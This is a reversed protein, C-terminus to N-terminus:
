LGYGQSRRQYRPSGQGQGQGQPQQGFPNNSGPAGPNGNHYPGSFSARAQHGGASGPGQYQNPQLPTYMMGMSPDRGDFGDFGIASNGGTAAPPPFAPLYGPSSHNSSHPEFRYAGTAPSHPTMSIHPQMQYSISGQTRHGRGPSPQVHGPGYQGPMMWGQGSMAALEAQEQLYELQPYSANHMSSQKSHGGAHRREWERIADDRNLVPTLNRQGSPDPAGFHTLRALAPPIADMQNITNARNRSSPYYSNPPPNTPQLMPQQTRLVAHSTSPHMSQSPVRPQYNAPPPGMTM